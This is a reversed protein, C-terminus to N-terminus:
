SFFLWLTIQEMSVDILWNPEAYKAKEDRHPESESESDQWGDDYCQAVDQNRVSQPKHDHTVEKDQLV